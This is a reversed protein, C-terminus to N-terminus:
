TRRWSGTTSVQAKWTCMAGFNLLMARHLPKTTEALLEATADMCDHVALEFRNVKVGRRPCTRTLALSCERRTVIPDDLDEPLLRDM